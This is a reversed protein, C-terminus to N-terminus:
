SCVRNLTNTLLRAVKRTEKALEPSLKEGLEITRPQVGLLAIKANIDKQLVEALISLPMAHTSLTLGAIKDPPFLRAEGPEAEFQAADVFLVHSPKSREIEGTFNEPTTEAEILRVSRPVKGELERLIHLGLADDGRLPNGIGIIVLKRCHKLWRGLKSNLSM